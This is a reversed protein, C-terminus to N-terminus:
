SNDGGTGVSGGVQASAPRTTLAAIVPLLAAATLGVRGIMQRRSMGHPLIEVAEPELLESERLEALTLLVLDESVPADLERTAEAAIDATTRIGDCLGWICASSRNLCFGKHRLSDYILTESEVTQISIRDGHIGRPRLTSTM